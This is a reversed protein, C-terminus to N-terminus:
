QEAIESAALCRARRRPQRVPELLLARTRGPASSRARADTTIYEVPSKGDVRGLFLGPLLHATRAEIDDRPKGPSAQLIPRRCARRFLRPITGAVAAALRMQAALSEPLVRPRLRSRRVMRMRRRPVGSRETGGPHEEPQRRRAGAGEQRCRHRAGPQGAARACDPHKKATASLYPELRIPFFIHDTAFRGRSMPTAPLAATSPRSARPRSRPRHRGSIEGDRLQTKWVPYRRSRPIGHRVHRNRPRRRPGAAGCRSRRGGRGADMRDRIPQTRGAGALRSGSQAEAPRAEHLDPRQALDVRVIDSSVGGTLPTVAPLEGPQLLGMRGLATLFLDNSMTIKFCAASPRHRSSPADGPASLSAPVKDCGHRQSQRQRRWERSGMGSRHIGTRPRFAPVRERGAAAVASSCPSAHGPSSIQM